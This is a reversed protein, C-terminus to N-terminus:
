NIVMQHSFVKIQTWISRSFYRHDLQTKQPKDKVKARAGHNGLRFVPEFKAM